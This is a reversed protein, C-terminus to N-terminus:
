HKTPRAFNKVVVWLQELVPGRQDWLPFHPLGLIQHSRDSEEQTLSRTVNGAGLQPNISAIGDGLIMSSVRSPNCTQVIRESPPQARGNSVRLRKRQHSCTVDPTQPTRARACRADIALRYTLQRLQQAKPARGEAFSPLAKLSPGYISSLLTIFAAFQNVPAIKDSISWATQACICSSVEDALCSM